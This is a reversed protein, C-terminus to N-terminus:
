FWEQTLQYLGPTHNVKTGAEAGMGAITGDTFVAIEITVDTRLPFWDGGGDFSVIGGSAGSGGEKVWTKGHKIDVNMLRATIEKKGGIGWLRILCATKPKETNLRALTFYGRLNRLQETIKSGNWTIGGSSAGNVIYSTEIVFKRPDSSQFISIGDGSNPIASDNWTAKRNDSTVHPPFQFKITESNPLMIFGQSIFDSDIEAIPLNLSKAM